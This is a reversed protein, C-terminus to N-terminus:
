KQSKAFVGVSRESASDTQVKSRPLPRRSTGVQESEQGTEDQLVQRNGRDSSRWRPPADFPCIRNVQTWQQTAGDAEDLCLLAFV